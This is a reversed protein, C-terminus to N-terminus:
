CRHKTSTNKGFIHSATSPHNEALTLINTVEEQMEGPLSRSMVVRVQKDVFMYRFLRPALTKLDPGTEDWLVFHEFALLPVRRDLGSDGDLTTPHDECEPSPAEIKHRRVLLIAVKTYHYLKLSNKLKWISGV